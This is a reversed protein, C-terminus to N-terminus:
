SPKHILMYALALILGILILSMWLNRYTRKSRSHFISIADAAACPFAEATTRYYRVHPEPNFYEDPTVRQMADGPYIDASDIHRLFILSGGMINSFEPQIRPM